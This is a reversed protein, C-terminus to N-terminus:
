IIMKLLQAERNSVRDAKRDKERETKRDKQRKFVFVYFQHMFILAFLDIYPFTFVM